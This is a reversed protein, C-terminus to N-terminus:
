IMTAIFVNTTYFFDALYFIFNFPPPISSILRIMIAIFCDHLLLFWVFWLQYLVTTYYFDFLILWNIIGTFCDHFLLFLGFWLKLLFITCSFLDALDYNCYFLPTISTFYFWGFRLGLFVTTSYFFAVSHYNFYFDALYYFFDVLYHICNFPPPISSILRIMIAIFYDHLLLSWAFWLQYLITTYYLDFLLLWIIIGTFCDHFLLFLGLWWDLLVTTCSFLDALDYNCYFGPAISTLYFWYFRLRLFVTTSYFFDVM